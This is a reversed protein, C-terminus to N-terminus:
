MLYNAEADRRAVLGKLKKGGGNVWKKLEIVSANMDGDNLRKRLTSAKLRGIGLNYAFDAIAALQAGELDPCITKTAKLFKSADSVLRKDAYAQTWVTNPLIDRGTSGWGCTLVGAPCYYAKLKCGEFHKILKILLELADM